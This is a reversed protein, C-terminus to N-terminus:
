EIAGSLIRSMMTSFLKMFLSMKCDYYYRKGIWNKEEWFQKDSGSSKSAMAKQVGFIVIESMGPRYYKKDTQLLYLFRSLEKEAVPINLEKKTRTIFGGKRAGWGTILQDIFHLTDKIGSMATTVAFFVPKGAPMPKHFWENTRDAFAKFKSTVGSLYVPSGLVVGDSDLIKQRIISMDDKQSCGDKKVCSDDDGMCHKIEYDFLNLIETEVDHNKLIEGIQALVNYTNKKRFSGNIILVKNNM